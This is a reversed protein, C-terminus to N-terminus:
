HKTDYFIVKCYGKGNLVRKIYDKYGGITEFGEFSASMAKRTRWWYNEGFNGIKCDARGRMDRTQIDVDFMFGTRDEFKASIFLPITSM